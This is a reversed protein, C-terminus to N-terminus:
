GTDEGKTDNSFDFRIIKVTTDFNVDNGYYKQYTKLMEHKSSFQEHGEYDEPEIDGLRKQIITNVRATGIAVWTEPRAPDVKDILKLEDSVSLDKDDFLRWTTRKKGALILEALHHDLKLSKM